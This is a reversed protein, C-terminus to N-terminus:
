FLGWEWWIKEHNIFLLTFDKRYQGINSKFKSTKKSISINNVKTIVRVNLLWKLLQWSWNKIYTCKLKFM